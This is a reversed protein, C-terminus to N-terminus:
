STRDAEAIPMLRRPQGEYCLLVRGALADDEILRAIADAIDDPELMSAPPEFAAVDKGVQENLTRQSAPTNVWGPCVCNVRINQRAALPALAGTLRAVAAKAAAYEPSGHPRFGIGAGSSVNVIAGGRRMARIAHHTCLMVGRLYVDLVRTWRTVPADPFYPPSIYFGANNVFVDLSGFSRRAFAVLRRVDDERSVDARVFAARGGTDEILRVTERGGRAAIDNVVVAAGKRALRM